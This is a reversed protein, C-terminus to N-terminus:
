SCITTSLSISVRHLFPEARLAGFKSGELDRYMYPTCIYKSERFLAVGETCIWGTWTDESANCTIPFIIDNNYNKNVTNTETKTAVMTIMKNQYYTCTNYTGASWGPCNM